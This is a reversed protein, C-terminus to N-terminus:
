LLALHCVEKESMRAGEAFFRALEDPSLQDRLLALTNQSTRLELPQRMVHKQAYTNQIWGYVRAAAEVKGVKALRLAYHDMLIWVSSAEQLYPMALRGVASAETLEGCETLIGFLNGYVWGWGVKHAIKVQKCREVVNRAAALAQVLDGADWLVNAMNEMITLELIEDGAARSLQLASCFERMADATMGRITYLLGFSKPVMALLRQRNSNALSAKAQLLMEEAGDAGGLVLSSGLMMQVYGLRITKGLPLYLSMARRMASVAHENLRWYFFMGAVLQLDAELEPPTDPGLCALAADLRQQQEALMLRGVWLQGSLGTLALGIQRDGEPGFSWDLALRLNDLEPAYRADFASDSLRTWDDFCSKFVLQYHEAALRAVLATEQAEALRELAYVRTTELLRYRAHGDSADIALLSKAILIAISEIVEFQDFEADAAVAIAAALSFGGVFGAVRRFVVRERAALLGYSWDLTAQLTRQRPIASRRGGTLVRFREDLLQALTDLGLTTVRAAAMEIALPIGDLRRCIAAIIPANADTCQFGLDAAKARQIFLHVAGSAQAVAASPLAEEPLTLSPVRFVQEGVVGLVEQSSTLVQIRPAVALLANLFSAVAGILHECNDFLLLMQKDRLHRILTDRASATDKIEIGLASALTTTLREPDSQAALEILWVGAAFRELLGQASAIMLRTKGVGGPGTVTVLQHDALLAHLEALEPERGILIGLNCPLNNNDIYPTRSQTPAGASKSLLPRSFRYGKGVVTAIADQGLLKRLTSIHVQLNNEEVVLKPWVQELLADKTVLQGAREVLALLLDFARAGLAVPAGGVLLRREDPQLEFRDFCYSVPPDSVPM